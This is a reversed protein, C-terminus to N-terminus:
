QQHTRGLVHDLVQQLDTGVLFCHRALTKLGANVHGAENNLIAQDSLYGAVALEFASVGMLLRRRRLDAGVARMLWDPHEPHAPMWPGAVKPGGHAPVAKGHPQPGPRRHHTSM